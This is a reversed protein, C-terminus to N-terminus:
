RREVGDHASQEKGAWDKVHKTEEEDPHAPLVSGGICGDRASSCLRDGGPSVGGSAVIKSPGNMPIVGQDHKHCRDFQPRQIEQCNAMWSPNCKLPRTNIYTQRPSSSVPMAARGVGGPHQDARLKLM